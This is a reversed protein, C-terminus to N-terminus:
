SRVSIMPLFIFSFLLFTFISIYVVYPIANLVLLAKFQFSRNMIIYIKLRAKLHWRQIRRYSPNKRQRSNCRRLDWFLHEQKLAVIILIEEIYIYHDICQNKKRTYLLYFAFMTLISATAICLETCDALNLILRKKRENSVIDDIQFLHVFISSSIEFHM